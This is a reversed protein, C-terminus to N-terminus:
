ITPTDSASSALAEALDPLDYTSMSHICVGEVAGASPPARIDPPECTSEVARRTGGPADRGGEFRPAHCRERLDADHASRRTADSLVEYAHRIDRFADDTEAQTKDPHHKRAMRFFARKVDDLNCWSPLQLTDYHSRSASTADGCPGDPRRSHHTM